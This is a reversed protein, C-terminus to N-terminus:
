PSAKWTVTFGAEYHRGPAPNFGTPGPGFTPGSAYEVYEEDTLNRVRFLLAVDFLDGVPRRWALTTDITFYPNLDDSFAAVDNAVTREGVVNANAGAEFGLPLRLLFGATGRHLPTIPMRKGALDSISDRRVQADDLTYSGWLELWDCARWSAWAEVGRHRVEDLNVNQPSLFGFDFDRVYPDFFIEDEVEMWYLALNVSLRGGRHKVGAEYANSTQIRLDFLDGTFGLSEDFNPMRFGRAYSVYASTPERFRWTLSARPSPPAPSDDVDEPEQAFGEFASRRRLEYDARDYRFGASLILADTLSLDNQVFFGHVTRAVETEGTFTGFDSASVSNRDATERLLDAGLVARNRFPGLARDIELQASGGWSQSDTDFRFDFGTFPTADLFAGADRRSRWYPALVLTVGEALLVDGRGQVFREHSSVPARWFPEAEDRGLERLEDKTLTGPRERDDSSYGSQLEFSASETPTVRVRGHFTHADLDSQDRYGATTNGDVYFAGSWIGRSGGAFLSGGLTDYSGGRSTLTVRPAGQGDRTTIEIVGAIANDGYLTSAPGRVIEIREVRDLHVLSWDVFSSDSENVRRGDVLVLLSSGNGGGNNFGRAEVRYGEANGVDNTVYLGSERRLLEPVDRAGSADIAARDIVTVNGPVALVDRESRSATVSVEGVRRVPAPPPEPAPAPQEAPPDVREEARAPVPLSSVLSCLGSAVAFMALARPVFAFRRM